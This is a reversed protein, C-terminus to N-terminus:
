GEGRPARLAPALNAGQYHGAPVSSTPRKLSCCSYSDPRVEDTLGESQWRGWLPLSKNAIGFVNVMSLFGM